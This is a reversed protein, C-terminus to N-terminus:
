PPLRLPQQIFVWVKEMFDLTYRTFLFLFFLLNSIFLLWLYIKSSVISLPLDFEFPLQQM